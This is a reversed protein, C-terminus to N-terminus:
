HKVLVSVLFKAKKLSESLNLDSDIQSSPHKPM